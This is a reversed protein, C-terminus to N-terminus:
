VVKTNNAGSREKWECSSLPGKIREKRKQQRGFITKKRQGPPGKKGEEREKGKKRGSKQTEATKKKLLLRDWM